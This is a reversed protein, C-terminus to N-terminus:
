NLLVCFHVTCGVSQSSQARKHHVFTYVLQKTTAYLANRIKILHFCTFLDRIRISDLNETVSNLFVGSLQWFATEKRQNLANISDRVLWKM